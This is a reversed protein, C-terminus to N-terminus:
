EDTAVTVSDGLSPIEAPPVSREPRSDPDFDPTVDGDATDTDPIDFEVSSAPVLSGGCLPCSEPHRYGPAVSAVQYGCKPRNECVKESM